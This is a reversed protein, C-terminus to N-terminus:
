AALDGDNEKERFYRLLTGLDEKVELSVIENTLKDITLEVFYDGMVTLSTITDGNDIERVNDGSRILGNIRALENNDLNKNEM